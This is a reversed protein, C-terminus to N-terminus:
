ALREAMMPWNGDPTLFHEPFMQEYARAASLVKADDTRGAIIQLGIPLGATSRGCPVSCAPQQSLNIPFSYSSWEVWHSYGAGLPVNVGAEFATIPTTPSIILDHEVLLEDMLYGFQSRSIEAQIRDVASYRQGRAAVELFGRDLKDHDKEDIAALRNAAGVHWHRYFIEELEDQMPLTIETVIAGALEFEETTRRIAAAVEPDNGGVCPESWYAIRKGKWDFPRLEIAVRDGPYQNWDRTDKGSMANLMAVVDEVTRAMPGIHAVTGFASAPYAPVLGFSPKHGVIGTFSAPIRISGGGDTGLHLVGAGFAAAASAGGSSGGPTMSPDWPNRTIGFKPSDTVAKWGFEPTNTLGLVVVGAANLRQTSPADPENSVDETVASGFRVDYGHLLVIDKITTPVGDVASLPAGSRWREESKRASSLAADHDIVTFANLEAKAKEARELAAKAVEVPSVEGAAYAATLEKATAKCLDGPVTQSHQM